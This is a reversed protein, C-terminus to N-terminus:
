YKESKSVKITRYSYFENPNNKVFNIELSLFKSKGGNEIDKL